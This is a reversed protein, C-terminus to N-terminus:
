DNTNEQLMPLVYGSGELPGRFTHLFAGLWAALGARLAAEAIDEYLGRSTLEANQLGNFIALRAAEVAEPPITALAIRKAETTDTM